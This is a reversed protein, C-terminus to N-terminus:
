KKVLQELLSIIRQNQHIQIVSLRLQAEDGLQFPLTRGVREGAEHRVGEGQPGEREDVHRVGHGRDLFGQLPGAFLLPTM